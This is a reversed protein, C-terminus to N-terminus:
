FKEKSDIEIAEIVKKLSRKVVSYDVEQFTGSEISDSKKSIHSLNQRIKESAFGTLESINQAYLNKPMEKGIYGLERLYHFFIVVQNQTFSTLNELKKKSKPQKEEVQNNQEEVINNKVESHSTLMFSSLDIFRITEACFEIKFSMFKNISNLANESNVSIFLELQNKSYKLDKTIEQLFAKNIEKFNDAIAQKFEEFGVELKSQFDKFNCNNLKFDKFYTRDNFQFKINEFDDYSIEHSYKDFAIDIYGLLEENSIVQTNVLLEEDFIYDQQNPDTLVIPIKKYSKIIISNDMLLDIFETIRADM